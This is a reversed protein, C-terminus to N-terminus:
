YYVIRQIDTTFCVYTVIDMHTNLDNSILKHLNIASKVNDQEVFESPKQM